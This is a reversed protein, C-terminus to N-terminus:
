DRTASELMDFVKSKNEDWARTLYKRGHRYGQSDIWFQGGFTKEIQYRRRKQYAKLGGGGKRVTVMSSRDLNHHDWARYIGEHMKNAYDTNGASVEILFGRGRGRDTVEQAITSVLEGTEIPARKRTEAQLYVGVRRAARHIRNRHENYGANLDRITQSIGTIIVGNRGM